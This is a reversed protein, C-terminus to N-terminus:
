AAHEMQFTRPPALLAYGDSMPGGGLDDILCWGNALAIPVEALPIFEGYRRHVTRRDLASAM